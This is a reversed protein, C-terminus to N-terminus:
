LPIRVHIVHGEKITPLGLETARSVAKTALAALNATTDTSGFINALAVRVDSNGFDVEQPTLLLLLWEREASTSVATYDPLRIASILEESPVSTRQESRNVVNLSDAVQQDAMGAYGIGLPDNLVEDRLIQIKSAM